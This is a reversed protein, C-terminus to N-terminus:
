ALLISISIGWLPKAYMFLLSPSSVTAIWPFFVGVEVLYKFAADIDAYCNQESPTGTAKGYGAYEYAMVNVNLQRSFDFFQDYIMGTHQTTASLLIPPSSAKHVSVDVCASREIGM